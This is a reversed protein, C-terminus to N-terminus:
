KTINKVRIRGQIIKKKNERRSVVRKLISELSSAM